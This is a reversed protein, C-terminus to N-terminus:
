RANTRGQHQQSSRNHHEALWQCCINHMVTDQAEEAAHLVDQVLPGARNPELKVAQLYALRLKSCLLYAKIQLLPLGDILKRRYLM